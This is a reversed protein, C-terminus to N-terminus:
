WTAANTIEKLKIHLMAMNHFFSNKGKSGVGLTLPIPTPPPTHAFYKSGHPQMLSERKNSICCSWTRFFNFKVKQGWPRPPHAAPLINAVMNSCERNGIILYAIHGHEQFLQIKANQGRPPHPSHAFYKSGHQQM